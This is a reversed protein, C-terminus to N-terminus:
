RYKCDLYYKAFISKLLEDPRHPSNKTLVCIQNTAKVYIVKGETEISFEEIDKKKEALVNAKELREEMDEIDIAIKATEELKKFEEAVSCNNCNNAYSITSFSVLGTFIIILIKM